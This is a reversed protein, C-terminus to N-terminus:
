ISTRSYRRAAHQKPRQRWGCVRPLVRKDDIYELTKKEEDEKDITDIRGSAEAYGNGNIRRCVVYSGNQVYVGPVTSKIKATDPM